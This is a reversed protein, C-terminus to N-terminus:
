EIAHLFGIGEGNITVLATSPGEGLHHMITDHSGFRLGDPLADAQGDLGRCLDPGHCLRSSETRRAHEYLQNLVTYLRLLSLLLLKEIESLTKPACTVWFLNLAETLLHAPHHKAISLWFDLAAIVERVTHPLVQDVAHPISRNGDGVQILKPQPDVGVRLNGLAVPELIETREPEAALTRQRLSEQKATSDGLPLLESCELLAEYARPVNEPEKTLPLFTGKPHM